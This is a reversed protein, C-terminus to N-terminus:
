LHAQIWNAKPSRPFVPQAADAILHLVELAAVAVLSMIRNHGLEALRVQGPVIAANQL